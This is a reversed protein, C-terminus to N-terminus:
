ETIIVIFSIHLSFQTCVYIIYHIGIYTCISYSAVIYSTYLQLQLNKHQITQSLDYYHYMIIIVYTYFRVLSTFSLAAFPFSISAILTMVMVNSCRFFKINFCISSCTGCGLLLICHITVTGAIHLSPAFCIILSAAVCTIVYICVHIVMHHLVRKM